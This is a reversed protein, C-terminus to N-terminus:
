FHVWEGYFHVVYFYREKKDGSISKCTPIHKNGETQRGVNEHMESTVVLSQLNEQHKIHVKVNGFYVRSLILVRCFHSM